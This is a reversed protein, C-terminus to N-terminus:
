TRESPHVFRAELSALRDAMDRFRPDLLADKIQAIDLKIAAIETQVDFVVTNNEDSM